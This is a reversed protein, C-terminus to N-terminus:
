CRESLMMNGPEDMKYCIDTSSKKKNDKQYM